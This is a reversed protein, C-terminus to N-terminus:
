VISCVIRGFLPLFLTCVPISIYTDRLVVFISDFDPLRCCDASESCFHVYVLKGVLLITFYSNLIRTNKFAPLIKWGNDTELSSDLDLHAGCMEKRDRM